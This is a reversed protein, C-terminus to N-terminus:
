ATVEEYSLVRNYGCAVQERVIRNIELMRDEATWDSLRLTADMLHWGTNAENYRAETEFVGPLPMKRGSLRQKRGWNTMTMSM